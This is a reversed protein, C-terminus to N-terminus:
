IPREPHKENQQLQGFLLGNAQSALSIWFLYPKLPFDDMLVDKYVFSTAM